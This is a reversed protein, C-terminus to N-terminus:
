EETVSSSLAEKVKEFDKEFRKEERRKREEVLGAMGGFRGHARKRIDDRDYLKMPKFKKNRPNEREIFACVQLTGEPLCYTRMAEAKTVFKSVGPEQEFPELELELEVNDSNNDYQQSLTYEKSKMTPVAVLCSSSSHHNSRNTNAINASVNGADDSRLRRKRTRQRELAQERNHRIREKQEDTLLSLQEM